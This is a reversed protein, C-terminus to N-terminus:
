FICNRKDYAIYVDDIVRFLFACTWENVRCLSACFWFVLKFLAMEITEDLGFGGFHM